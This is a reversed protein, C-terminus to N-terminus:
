HAALVPPCGFPGPTRRRTPRTRGAASGGKPALEVERDRLRDREEETRKRETIDLLSAVAGVLEGEANNLPAASVLVDYHSSDPRVLRAEM